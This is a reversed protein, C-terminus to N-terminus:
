FAVQANRRETHEHMANKAQRIYKAADQRTVLYERNALSPALLLRVKATRDSSVICAFGPCNIVKAERGKITGMKM